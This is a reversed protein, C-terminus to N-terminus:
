FARRIYYRSRQERIRAFSLDAYFDVVDPNTRPLDRLKAPVPSSIAAAIAAAVPTPVTPPTAAPM